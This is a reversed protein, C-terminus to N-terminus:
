FLPDDHALKRVFDLFDDAVVLEDAGPGIVVIPCEGRDDRKSIDIYYFYDGGDSSLTILNRPTGHGHGTAGLWARKTSEVVNTFYSSASKGNGPPHPSLGDFYDSFMIAAGLHRLFARYSKPFRVGLEREAAEIVDDSVPGAFEPEDEYQASLRRIEVIIEQEDM